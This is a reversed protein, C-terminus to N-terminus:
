TDISGEANGTGTRAQDSARVRRLLVRGGVVMSIGTLVLFSTILTISYNREPTFIAPILISLLMVVIATSALLWGGVICSLATARPPLARQNWNTGVTM